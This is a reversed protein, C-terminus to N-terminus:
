ENRLSKIAKVQCLPASLLASKRSFPLLLTLRHLQHPPAPTPRPSSPPPPTASLHPSLRCTVWHASVILGGGNCLQVDCGPPFLPRCEGFIVNVSPPLSQSAVAGTGRSAGTRMAAALSSFSGASPCRTSVLPRSEEREPLLPWICM